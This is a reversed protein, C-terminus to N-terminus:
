DPLKFIFKLIYYVLIPMGFLAFIPGLTYVLYILLAYAIDCIDLLIKVIM